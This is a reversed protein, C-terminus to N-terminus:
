GRWAVARVDAGDYTQEIEAVTFWRGLQHRVHDVTLNKYHEGERLPGGDIASHPARNPGAATFILMGGDRRLLNRAHHVIEPWESTHEAVELCLAVDFPEVTGYDLVDGVWTVRPGDVLDVVEWACGPHFLHGPHGNIDRGGIDLVSVPGAPAHRGVWDLVAAHM